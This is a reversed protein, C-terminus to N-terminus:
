DERLTSMPDLRVARVAPFLMASAAAAMLVATALLLTLPDTPQIGYLLNSLARNAAM